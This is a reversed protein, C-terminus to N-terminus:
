GNVYCPHVVLLIKSDAPMQKIVELMKQFNAQLQFIENSPNGSLIWNDRGVLWCQLDVSYKRYPSEYLFSKVWISSELSSQLKLFNNLKGINVKPLPLSFTGEYELGLEKESISALSLSKNGKIKVKRPWLLREKFIEFNEAQYIPLSNHAVTGMIVAGQNRLWTLETIFVDAASMGHTKEFMLADNHLGIEAGAVIMDYIWGGLEPNRVFVDDYFNGYYLATHLFYFSGCLGRQALFRAAKVATFPDADIDHRLGIIKHKGDAQFRNFEYLPLLLADKVASLEDILLQYYSFTNNITAYNCEMQKRYSKMDFSSYAKYPASNFIFPHKKITLM